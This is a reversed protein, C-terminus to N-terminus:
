LLQRFHRMIDPQVIHSEWMNARVKISHKKSRENQSFHPVRGQHLTLLNSHTENERGARTRTHAHASSLWTLLRLDKSGSTAPCPELRSSLTCYCLTALTCAVTLRTGACSIIFSSPSSSFFFLESSINWQGDVVCSAKLDVRTRTRQSRALFFDFHVRSGVHAWPLNLKRADSSCPTILVWGSQCVGVGGSSDSSRSSM